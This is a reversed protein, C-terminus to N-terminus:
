KNRRRRSAEQHQISNRGKSVNRTLLRFVYWMSQIEFLRSNEAAQFAKTKATNELKWFENGHGELNRSGRKVSVPQRVTGELKEIIEKKWWDTKKKKKRAVLPKMEEWERPPPAKSLRTFFLFSLLILIWETSATFFYACLCVALQHLCHLWSSELLAEWFM